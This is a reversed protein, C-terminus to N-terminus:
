LEGIRGYRPEWGIDLPPSLVWNVGISLQEDRIARTVNEFLPLNFTSSMALNSPFITGGSIFLGNVSDCVTIFPINHTSNTRQKERVENVAPLVDLIWNFM